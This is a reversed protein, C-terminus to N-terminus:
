LLNAWTRESAWIIFIVTIFMGFSSSRQQEQNTEAVEYVGMENKIIQTYPNTIYSGENMNKKDAKIIQYGAMLITGIIIAPAPGFVDELAEDFAKYSALSLYISLLGFMMQGFKSQKNAQMVLNDM